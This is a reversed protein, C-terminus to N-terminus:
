AGRKHDGEVFHAVQDDYVKKFAPRACVRDRYARLNPYAPAEARRTQRFVDAMMIDAVTFRGAAIWERDALVAEMHALRSELWGTLGNDPGESWSLVMWPVSVMEISNLAAITWQLTDAEGAPDHPMLIESKKALYLLCAGSEFVKIGDDELFPIQGFPQRAFHDAGRDEFPTTKVEYDLAAEECAWRLRLDRVLGRPGNEGGPVYNYTWITLM